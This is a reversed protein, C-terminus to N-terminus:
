RVAFPAWVPFSCSDSMLSVDRQAAPESCDTLAPFAPVARQPLASPPRPCPSQWGLLAVEATRCESTGWGPSSCPASSGAKCHLVAKVECAASYGESAKVGSSSGLLVAIQSSLVAMQFAPFDDTWKWNLWRLWWRQLSQTLCM